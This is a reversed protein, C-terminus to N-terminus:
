PSPPPPQRVRARRNSRRPRRASYADNRRMRVWSGRMLKEKQATRIRLVDTMEPVPVQV